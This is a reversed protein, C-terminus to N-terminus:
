QVDEDSRGQAATGASGKLEWEESLVKWHSNMAVVLADKWERKWNKLQKERTIAVRIDSHEEFWILKDCNYRATFSSPYKKRKHEQVRQILNSTVGTYLVSNWRNAMMYVWSSPM